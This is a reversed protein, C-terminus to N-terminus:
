AARVRIENATVRLCKLKLDKRKVDIEKASGVLEHEDVGDVKPLMQYRVPACSCSCIGGSKREGAISSGIRM